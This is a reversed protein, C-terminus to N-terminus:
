KVASYAAVKVSCQEHICLYFKDISLFFFFLFFCFFSTPRNRLFCRRTCRDGVSIFLCLTRAPAGFVFLGPLFLSLFLSLPREVLSSIEKMSLRDCNMVTEILLLVSQMAISWFRLFFDSLFVQTQIEVVCMCVYVCLSSTHKQPPWFSAFLICMSRGMCDFCTFGSFMKM